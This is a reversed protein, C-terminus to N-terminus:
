FTILTIFTMLIDKSFDSLIEQTQPVIPALTLMKLYRPLDSVIDANIKKTHKTYLHKEM